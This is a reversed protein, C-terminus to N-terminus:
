LLTISQFKLYNKLQTRYIPKELKNSSDFYKVSSIKDFEAESNKLILEM